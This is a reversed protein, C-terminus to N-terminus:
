AGQRRGRSDLLVVNGLRSLRRAELERALQGVVDFRGADSARDLARALAAEVLDSAAADRPLAPRSDASERATDGESLASEPSSARVDAAEDGSPTLPDSTRIWDGRSRPIASCDTTGRTPKESDAAAHAAANEAVRCRQKLAFVAALEPIARDLPM